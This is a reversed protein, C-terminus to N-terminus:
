VKVWYEEIQENLTMKMFIEDFIINKGKQISYCHM